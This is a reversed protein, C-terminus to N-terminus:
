ADDHERREAQGVKMRDPSVSIWVAPQSSGCHHQPLWRPRNTLDTTPFQNYLSSM